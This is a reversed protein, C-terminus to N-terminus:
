LPPRSIPKRATPVFMKCYRSRSHCSPITETLLARVYLEPEQGAYVMASANKNVEEEEAALVPDLHSMEEMM